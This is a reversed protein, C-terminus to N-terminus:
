SGQYLERETEFNKKEEMRYNTLHKYQCLTTSNNHKRATLGSITM